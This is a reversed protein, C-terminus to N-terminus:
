PRVHLFYCAHQAPCSLGAALAGQDAVVTGGERWALAIGLHQSDSPSVWVQTQAGPMRIQVEQTWAALDSMAWELTSCPRASCDVAMPKQGWALQYANMRTRNARVREAMDQALWAAHENAQQSRWMQMSKGQVWLLGLIGLSLLSLAALTEVLGWGSPHRMHTARMMPQHM